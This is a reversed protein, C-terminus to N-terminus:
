RRRCCSAAVVTDARLRPADPMRSLSPKLSTSSAHSRCRGPSLACLYTCSAHSRSRPPMPAPALLRARQGFGHMLWRLSVVDCAPPATCAPLISALRVHQCAYVSYAWLCAVWVYVAAAYTPAYFPPPYAVSILMCSLRCIDVYVQRLLRRIGAYRVYLIFSILVYSSSSTFISCSRLLLFGSGRNVVCACVGETHSQTHKHESEVGQTKRLLV